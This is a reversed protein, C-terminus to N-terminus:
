NFGMWIYTQVARQVSKKVCLKRKLKQPLKLPIKSFSFNEIQLHLAPRLTLM